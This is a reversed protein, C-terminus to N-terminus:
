QAECRAERLLQLIRQPTIPMEFIGVGFPALPPELSADHAASM